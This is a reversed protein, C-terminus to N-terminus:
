QFFLQFTKLLVEIDLLPSRNKLYYLDYEFKEKSDIISRGYRFKIQAWGTFGPKIIHRLDYHPIEEELDQVFEPREPRPGVFTIEGRLINIMQPLEDLHLKRIIKGTKTIRKDEEKAWQAKGKEANPKMSRFKYLTFPEKDKGIRKQSYIILGKDELKIALAILLSIPSTVILILIALIIDLVRKIKDYFKKQRGQVNNLFWSQSIISVPIKEYILEYAQKLNLFSIEESSYFYLLKLLREDLEFDKTFIITNIKKKKIQPLLSKNLDISILKYGLHPNSKITEKLKQVEKNKGLIIIRDIFHNSFLIIFLKRWGLFAFSFILTNLFLNTKPSIGFFPFVYFFILGGMLCFLMAGLLRNSFSLKTKISNIDYLGFIYLVLIWFLYLISFPLLHKKFVDLNIQDLYGIFLTLIFSFYLIFLDGILLLIKRFDLVNIM